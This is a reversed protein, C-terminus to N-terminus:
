RMRYEMTSKAQSWVGNHEYAIAIDLDRRNKKNPTCTLTGTIHEGESVTLVKDLYFVTQKWHTERALPSTSFHIPKHGHQFYTDFYAVLAHVYDNRTAVMDFPATFTCDEVSYKSVDVARLVSTSTCLQKAEVVDVLPERIAVEKICQMNFGYVNDWFHLKEHMYEADEIGVINLTIYDPLIVGGEALWKDRAYIVTDLMSEYFLFYGMWESVIVDVKDVPLTVEEVKGQIITVVDEFGNDKVIQKAHEAISSCEIAYVAKAGAKACFLSLIGTGCGIDLVVKGQIRNKNYEIANEYTRTRVVDKLMEEHIGFHAYSDFYYDKSTMDKSGNASAPEATTPAPDASTAAGDMTHAWSVVLGTTSSDPLPPTHVLRIGQLLPPFTPFFGAARHIQM